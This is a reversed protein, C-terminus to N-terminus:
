FAQRINQIDAKFNFFQYLTLKNRVAFGFFLGLSSIFYGANAAMAAGTLNYKPMLISALVMAFVFGMFNCGAIFKLKGLGSFYHSIVTSFSICLIGPSLWLMLHKVQDFDEGLLYIFVDVPIFWIVVVAICSLFFATKALTIVIGRNFPTDGTNSIKALVIPTIGSAIIWVSEILSSAASYLGVLASASFFYWTFRNVQVHFWGALQCFFGNAFVAKLSFELKGDDEFIYKIVKVSSIIFSVSFSIFLPIIYAKFTFDKLYLIFFTIGCILLLPQLVSLFNYLKVNEKALIIVMNFTNLIVLLSLFLMTIEFGGIEKNLLFFILNSVSTAALTWVLGNVFLKKLNFKPVFYVLSYGTYIENIIQINAINLVFLSIEGRTNLGLYKASIILILFNIIAVFGKTFLTQIINKIM